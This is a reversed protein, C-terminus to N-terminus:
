HHLPLAAGAAIPLIGTSLDYKGEVMGSPM